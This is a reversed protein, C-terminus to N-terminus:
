YTLKINAPIHGVESEFLETGSLDLERLQPLRLNRALSATASQGTHSYNLSTLQTLHRCTGLAQAERASFKNHSLNLVRLQTLSSAHRLWPSAQDVRSLAGLGNRSMNLETLQRLTSCTVLAEAGEDRVFNKSLDLEVLETHTAFHAYAAVDYGNLANDSLSLRRLSNFQTSQTFSQAGDYGVKALNLSTLQRSLASNQLAEMGDKGFRNGRLDLSRLNEVGSTDIVQCFNRIDAGSFTRSRLHLSELKQLQARSVPDKLTKLIRRCNSSSSRRPDGGLRIHFSLPLRCATALQRNVRMAAAIDRPPLHFLIEQWIHSPLEVASAALPSPPTQTRPSRAAPEASPRGAGKAGSAATPAKKPAAALARPTPETHSTRYAFHGFCSFISTSQGM